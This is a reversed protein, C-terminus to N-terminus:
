TEGPINARASHVTSSTKPKPRRTMAYTMGIDGLAGYIAARNRAANGAMNAGYLEYPVVASSGASENAIRGIDSGSRLMRINNDNNVDGYASLRSQAVASQSGKRLAGVLARAIESNVEVPQAAGAVQSYDGVAQPTTAIARTDAATAIDATQQDASLQKTTDALRVAAADGFKQQRVREAALVTRRASEDQDQGKKAQYAGAGGAALSTLAVITTPDCM